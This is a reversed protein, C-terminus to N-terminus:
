IPGGNLTEFDAVSRTISWMPESRARPETLRRCGTPVIRITPLKLVPRFGPASLRALREDAHNGHRRVDPLTGRSVGIPDQRGSVRSVAPLRRNGRVAHLHIRRATGVPRYGCLEPVTPKLNHGEGHMYPLARGTCSRSVRTDNIEQDRAPKASSDTTRGRGVASRARCSYCFGSSRGCPM